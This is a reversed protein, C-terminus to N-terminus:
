LARTEITVTVSLGAELAYAIDDITWALGGSPGRVPALAAVEESTVNRGVKLTRSSRQRVPGTVTIEQDAM